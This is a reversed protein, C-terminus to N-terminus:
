EEVPELVLRRKEIKQLLEAHWSKFVQPRERKLSPRAATTVTNGDDSKDLLARLEEINKELRALRAEAASLESEEGYSFVTGM